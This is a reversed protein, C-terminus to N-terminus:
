KSRYEAGGEQEENARPLRHEDDHVQNVVAPTIVM